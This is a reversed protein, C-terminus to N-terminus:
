RFRGAKARGHETVVEVLGRKELVRMRRMTEKGKPHEGILWQYRSVAGVPYMGVTTLLECLKQGQRGAWLSDAIVRELNRREPKRTSVSPRLRYIPPLLPPTREPEVGTLASAADSVYWEGKACYWGGISGPEVWNALLARALSLTRAVAWQSAGLVVLGAPWFPEAPDVTQGQVADRIAGLRECIERENDM